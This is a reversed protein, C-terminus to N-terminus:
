AFALVFGALTLAGGLAGLTIAAPISVTRGIMASAALCAGLSQNFFDVPDFIALKFVTFEAGAGILVSVILAIVTLWGHPHPHILSVCALM